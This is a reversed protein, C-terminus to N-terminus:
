VIYSNLSEQEWVCYNYNRICTDLIINSSRGQMDVYTVLRQDFCNMVHGKNGASFCFEESNFVTNVLSTVFCINRFDNNDSVKNM